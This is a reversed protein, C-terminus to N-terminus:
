KRLVLTRIAQRLDMPVLWMGAFLLYAVFGPAGNRRAEGILPFFAGRDKEQAALASVATLIFSAYAKPTVRVRNQRIWDFSYRWDGSASVSGRKEEKYWIGLSEDAFEIGVGPFSLARILLDSEQHRRLGPTFPVQLLLERPLLLMSTQLLGEGHFLTSRVMLYDSVHEGQHPLRRPLVFEGKPTRVLMRCAVIPYSFRSRAAVERQVTLKRPLWEDDDDLFAVWAGSAERVGANRAECGGVREPMRVVKLRPDEVRRLADMTAPDPGDVVVIVEIERYNQALASAVARCILDPRNCTPIVVSILSANTMAKM